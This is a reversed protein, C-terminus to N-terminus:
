KNGTMVLDALIMLLLGVSTFLGPKITISPSLVVFHPANGEAAAVRLHLLLESYSHCSVSIVVAGIIVQVSQTRVVTRKNFVCGGFLIRVLISRYCIYYFYIIYANTIIEFLMRILFIRESLHGTKNPLIM